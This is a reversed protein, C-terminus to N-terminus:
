NLVTCLAMYNYFTDVSVALCIRVLIETIEENGEEHTNRYWVDKAAHVEKIQDTVTRNTRREM